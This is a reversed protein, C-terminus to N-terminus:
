CCEARHSRWINGTSKNMAHKDKVGEADSTALCLCLLIHKVKVRSIKSLTQTYTLMQANM